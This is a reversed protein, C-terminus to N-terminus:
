TNKAFYAIKLVHARNIPIIKTLWTNKSDGYVAVELRVICKSTSSALIELLFYIM